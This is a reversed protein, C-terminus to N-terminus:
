CCGCIHKRRGLRGWLQGFIRMGQMRVSKKADGALETLVVGM